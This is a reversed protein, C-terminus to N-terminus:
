CKPVFVGPTEIYTVIAKNKQLYLNKSTKIVRSFHIIVKTSGKSRKSVGFGMM